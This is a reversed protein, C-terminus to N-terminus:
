VTEGSSIWLEQRSIAQEPLHRSAPPSKYATSAEARKQKGARRPPDSKEANTNQNDM